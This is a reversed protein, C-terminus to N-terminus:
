LVKTLRAKLSESFGMGRKFQILGDNAEFGITSTGADLLRVGQRQCWAYIEGALSVVPSMKGHGSRDGWYFVYLISPTLRLCCAAVIMKGGLRGAFLQMRGPFLHAMETLQELSMSLSYGRAARNEALVDYVAPLSEIPEPATFLGSERSRKM